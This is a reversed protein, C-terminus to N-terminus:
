TRDDSRHRGADERNRQEWADAMRALGAVAQEAIGHAKDRQARDDTDARLHDRWLVVIVALAAVLLGQPGFVEPPIM